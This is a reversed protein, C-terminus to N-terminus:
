FGNLCREKLGQLSCNRKKLDVSYELCVLDGNTLNLGTENRVSFSVSDYPLAVQIEQGINTEEGTPSPSTVNANVRKVCKKLVSDQKLKKLFYPYLTDVFAEIDENKM